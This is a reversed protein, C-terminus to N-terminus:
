AGGRRHLARVLELVQEVPTDMPLIRAVKPAWCAPDTPGFFSLVQAGAAAALHTTGTDNGVWVSSQAARQILGPLDAPPGAPGPMGAPLPEDLGAIVDIPLAAARLAVALAAFGPWVKAPASAGPALAILSPRAPDRPHPLRPPGRVELGLPALAAAMADTAHVGAPPRPPGELVEVGQARLRAAVGPTFVLAHTFPAPLPGPRHLWAAELGHLDVVRRALDPRLRAYRPNAYLEVPGFAAVLSEIVPITLIYDGLAGGRVVLWPSSM